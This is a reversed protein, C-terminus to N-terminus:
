SNFLGKAKGNILLKYQLPYVVAAISGLIINALLIGEVGLFRGLFVALPINFLAGSLGLILQLKLKSVGNLFYSFISNWTNIMVWIFVLLTLNFPIMIDNGIWISYVYNSISVLIIGFVFSILFMNILKQMISKIWEYEKKVWADTFASWFPTVIITFIMFITNLYKLAINYPTVENPGFLQSIIINNTQYLIIAAVQIAFFKIGVSFLVTIKSYDFYHISPRYYKFEANFFFITAIFMVLVPMGALTIGIYLISSKTTKTLVFISILALLNAILDFSSAKAPQQNALLLATILKLVFRMCFFGFVYLVLLTLESSSIVSNNINLISNWNLIKNLLALIIFVVTMITFLLLYSTSVLKKALFSDGRALAEAFKNRLGHGLGVDFFGFWGIISSLTLWVGYKTEDLYNVTISILLLGVIINFGKLFLLAVINKKARLTREHGRVFFNKFSYKNM